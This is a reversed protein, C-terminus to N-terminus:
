SKDDCIGPPALPQIRGALKLLEYRRNSNPGTPVTLRPLLTVSAFFRELRPTTGCRTLLLLPEKATEDLAQTLDFQSHAGPERSWSRVALPENRLYYTLAAVEARRETVVTPTGAERARKAIAEGLARWGLTREYVDPRSLAVISIRDAYADGVLLAAQTAIGIALTAMLWRRYGHRLWWAVVLVAMSIASPAAWNANAGRFFSLALVLALPPIAFALMLKDQRSVGGRLAQVILFLFAAFILPGAVGFQAGFFSLAELPRIGLGSGTINTGTHKVTAFHNVVNWYVNPSLMLLAIAVAAWTQPRRIVDRTSSDLWAALAVGLAFYIMAYKALLGFGLSIGLLLAWRWNPAAILKIYALLALAWFFLLPVDTSIIRSSFSVGTLLAVTLASWFATQKDYLADALAYVVLSTGFYFLPSALRVCAEGSGCVQDFAAIIWALLPPKSYYGFALERSWDWYQAEDFFLDVVSLHLGIVRIATLLALIAILLPLGSTTWANRSDQLTM